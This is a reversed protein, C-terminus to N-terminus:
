SLADVDVTVSDDSIAATQVYRGSGICEGGIWVADRAAWAFCLRQNPPVPSERRAADFIAIKRNPHLFRILRRRLGAQPAPTNNSKSKNGAM